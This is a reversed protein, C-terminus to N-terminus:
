FRIDCNFESLHVVGTVFVDKARVLIATDSCAASDLAAQIRLEKRFVMDSYSVSAGLAVFSM